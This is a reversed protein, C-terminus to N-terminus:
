AGSESPAASDEGIGLDKLLRDRKESDGLLEQLKKRFAPVNGLPGKLAQLAKRLELRKQLEPVQEAVAEPDFGKLNKFRLNVALEEDEKGSIQNPVSFSINLNQEAMVQNFNDKNIDIPKREEIPRDDQRCTFDGMLVEKWCLEVEEQAGGTAPKYVINIREQPAVSGEKAM